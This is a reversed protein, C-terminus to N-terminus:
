AERSLDERRAPRRGAGTLRSLLGALAIAMDTYGSFDCYIQIHYLTAALWRGARLWVSTRGQRECLFGARQVVHLRGGGAM